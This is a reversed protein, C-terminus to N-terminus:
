TCFHSLDLPQNGHLFGLRGPKEYRRPIKEMSRTSEATFAEAAVVPAGTVHAISTAEICSFASNFGYGDSWFECMPVDAVSGLDLDAAPNM